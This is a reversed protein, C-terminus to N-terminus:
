APTCDFVTIWALGDPQRSSGVHRVAKILFSGQFVSKDFPVLPDSPSVTVQSPPLKIYDSISLDARMATIVQIEDPASWVPQGVLDFFEINKPATPTTGDFVTFTNESIIIDVGQYGIGSGIIASSTQKIYQAFQLMSQYYGHQDEPFVLKDSISINTKFSPAAAAITNKIASALSTGKPWNLTINLEEDFTAAGNTVIIFEIWQATTVWNGFAQQITGQVLLGAQAPNALPLGKQMGGFVKINMGNFDSAQGIQQLSVGWIKVSAAGMPEAMPAVPIDFDVQLAGLDTQGNVFSTFVAFTKGNTDTIEIRYYRM